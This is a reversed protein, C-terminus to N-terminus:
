VVSKRDLLVVAAGAGGAAERLREMPGQAISEASTHQSM